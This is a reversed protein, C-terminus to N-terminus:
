DSEKRKPRTTFTSLGFDIIKPEAEKYGNSKNLFLVNDM